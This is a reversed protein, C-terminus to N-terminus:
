KWTFLRSQVITRLLSKMGYGQERAQTVIAEIEAADGPQPGRGTAYTVLKQTLARALQDKDSLLLVKLEDINSFTRGDALVDAPDVTPGQLYTMRRGDITVPKGNGVSRYYDRWGGIVDFSELAFGPPDIRTHCSACSESERHKALQERITNAGRIDPEIAPVGAPPPEPPMGLIRSLVWAGRVVPSTTTGNATVKLVAGMTMVGGRHSEPPLAVKRMAHGAVGSIGYHKALRENLFTFDSDVFNLLSLDGTVVERFFQHAEQIMAAKLMDDFEPYLRRDPETFDIDRLGLWQGVFNETFAKAKPSALLREFQALLTETERLKGEEALILLEEDPMTGWLFYSLRSALAFDDLQGPKERLYLFEPSVMIGKLAVRVAQEFTYGEALRSEVLAMFPQLDDDNVTRRFARRAFARLINRADTLPDSSVVEVRNRQNFVPAPAQPLDGFIQRHSEPPWREHLPGEVEVWEVLLGPGEYSEAGIKNVTQAAALGYPLLRITSRAELHEVFEVVSPEKAPADFYDVLHNKTGMLMPGADIRYTAPQDGNQIGYASIRFRYKGRDPPYFQSLTIAQWPSSSFMVLGNDLHRFVKETTHKVHREEKLSVRKKVLPPQPGNAIALALAKDAADLYRELLFSSVHLAEGVNDFGDASSDEPLMEKLEVEIGLLDRVTNEYEVRNLRRLIVRGQTTLKSAEAAALGSTIWDSLVKIESATPRPKSKPPMEGAQVRKLVALWAKRGAEDALDAPLRDVRFDKKPKEEGHCSLCHRALLPRIENDLTGARGSPAAKTDSPEVALSSHWFVALLLVVCLAKYALAVRLQQIQEAM